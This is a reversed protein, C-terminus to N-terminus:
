WFVHNGIVIGDHGCSVNRFYVCGGINSVGALAEQAAQLCSGKVGSALVADVQGSGAPSFQGPAYIVSRISGGYAGSRLRNMVAAGVAVMGDYSENGAECQILAGLLAADSADAAVAGNNTKGGSPQSKAQAQAEKKAQEAKAAEEAAIRAQEEEISIAEGVDLSVEVYESAVYGDTGSYSVFLWDSDEKNENSVYLSTGEELTSIIGADEDADTRLRLADATITAVMPCNEKAYEYAELGFVCFENKVYGEVDGSTIHTWEPGQEVIDAAAGAYLKGVIEAEESADARINLSEEVTAMLKNTWAQEEETLTPGEESPVVIADGENLAVGTNEVPVAAEAPNANDEEAAETEAAESDTETLAGAADLAETVVELKETSTNESSVEELGAAEALSEALESVAGATGGTGVANDNEELVEAATTPEGSYIKEIDSFIGASRGTLSAGSVLGAGSVTTAVALVGSLVAGSIVKRNRNM